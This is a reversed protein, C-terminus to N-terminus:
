ARMSDVVQCLAQITPQHQFDKAFALVLERQPQLEAIPRYQLDPRFKQM